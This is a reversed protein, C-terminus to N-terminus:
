KAAVFVLGHEEPLFGRPFFTHENYLANQFQAGKLRTSTLNTGRLDAGALNAQRLDAGVLNAGALNAGSLNAQRLIAASLVTKEFNAGSLDRKELQALNLIQHSFDKGVLSFTGPISEVRQDVSGSYSGTTINTLGDVGVQALLLSNNSRTASFDGAVAVSGALVVHLVLASLLIKRM